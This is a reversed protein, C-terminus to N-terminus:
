NWKNDPCNEEKMMTKYFISCSSCKLCNGLVDEESNDTLWSYFNSLSALFLKYNSLSRSNNSNYCCGSCIERRRKIEKDEKPKILRSKIITIIKKIM